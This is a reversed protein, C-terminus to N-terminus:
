RSGKDVIYVAVHKDGVGKIGGHPLDTTAMAM